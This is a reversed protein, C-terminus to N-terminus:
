LKLIGVGFDTKPCIQALIVFKRAFHFVKFMKAWIQRFISESNSIRFALTPILILMRSNGYKGIKLCCLCSKSKQDLNAWFRIKSDSNWFDLDPDPILVGLYWKYWKKTLASFKSIKQRLKPFNVLSMCYKPELLTSTTASFQTSTSPAPHVYNAGISFYDIHIELLFFFFFLNRNYNRCNRVEDGARVFKQYDTNTDKNEM